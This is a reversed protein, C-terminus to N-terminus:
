VVIELGDYASTVRLPAATRTIEEFRRTEDQIRELTADDYIPEHHFLVLHKVRAAQALEVGVINSSHGWDEKMSVSEGLSYMADFVALDANRFLEVFPRQDAASAFKHESDTAYVVVKGDREARYGYSDGGHQQLTPTIDFGAVARTRGPELYEFEITAGLAAFPIPFSPPGHQREFAERLNRHAGYIRITNGPIYAPTFLPFGMIHDWHPHSM